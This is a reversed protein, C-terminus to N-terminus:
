GASDGSLALSHKYKAKLEKIKPNVKEVTGWFDRKLEKFQSTKYRNESTDRWWNLINCRFNWTRPYMEKGAKDFKFKMESNKAFLNLFGNVLKESRKEFEEPSIKYDHMEKIDCLSADNKALKMITEAYGPAKIGESLFQKYAMDAEACKANKRLIAVTKYASDKILKFNVDQGIRKIMIYWRKLVHKNNIVIVFSM